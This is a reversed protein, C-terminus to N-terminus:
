RNAEGLNRVQDHFESADVMRPQGVYGDYKRLWPVVVERLAKLIDAAQFFAVSGSILPDSITLPNTRLWGELETLPLRKLREAEQRALDRKAAELISPFWEMVSVPPELDLDARRIAEKLDM